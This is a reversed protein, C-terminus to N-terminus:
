LAEGPSVILRPGSRDRLFAISFDTVVGYELRDYDRTQVATITMAEGGRFRILLVSYGERTLAGAEISDVTRGSVFEKLAREPASGDGRRRILGAMLLDSSCM